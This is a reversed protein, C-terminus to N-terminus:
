PNLRTAHRAVLEWGSSHKVWVMLVDLVTGPGQSGRMTLKSKVVATNGYVRVTTGEFEITGPPTKASVVAEIAEAKSETKGSSHSYTLDASYLKELAARDRAIMAAKWADLAALVDKDGAAFLTMSCLLIPLIRHM